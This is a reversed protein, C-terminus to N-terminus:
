TAFRKIAERLTMVEIDREGVWELTERIREESVEEQVTHAGLVGVAGHEAIEDLDHKVYEPSTFEIFYDRRTMYPDFGTPDNIRSGPRANAVGDYYEPVFEMSWEDFDDYPALLTDVEFGLEELERQSEGLAEHMQEEPYRIVTNGAAFSDGVPQELLVPRTGGPARGLGAVKRSVSRDGDTIEILLGEPYGHRFEEAHIAIDESDVDEVLEYAALPTHRTTHSCIEWGAAALEELQDVDMWDDSRGVYESVIGVTAPADFEQHAPFAQMYDEIPGDDYVFVVAGNEPPDLNEEKEEKEEPQQDEAAGDDNENKSENDSSANEPTEDVTKGSDTTDTTCGALSVALGGTGSGVTGLFRRRTSIHDNM